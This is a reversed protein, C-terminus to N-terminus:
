LFHTTLGQKKPINRFMLFWLAGLTKDRIYTIVGQGFYPWILQTLGKLPAIFMWPFQLSLVIYNTGSRKDALCGFLLEFEVNENLFPMKNQKEVDNLAQLKLTGSLLTNKFKKSKRSNIMAPPVDSSKLPFGKLQLNKFINCSKTM